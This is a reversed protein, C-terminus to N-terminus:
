LAPVASEQTAPETAAKRIEKLAEELCERIADKGNTGQKSYVNRVHTRANELYFRVQKLDISEAM